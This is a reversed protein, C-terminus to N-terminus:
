KGTDRLVELLKEVVLLDLQNLLVIKHNAVECLYFIGQKPILLYVAFVATHIEYWYLIIKMGVLKM